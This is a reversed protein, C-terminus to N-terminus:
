PIQRKNSLLWQSQFKGEMSEQPSWIRLTSRNRRSNTQRNRPQFSDVYNALRFWTFGLPFLPYSVPLLLGLDGHHVHLRCLHPVSEGRSQGQLHFGMLLSAADLGYNYILGDAATIQPVVLTTLIATVYSWFVTWSMTPERLRLTPIETPVVYCSSLILGKDTGKILLLPSLNWSFSM